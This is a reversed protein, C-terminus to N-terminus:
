VMTSLSYDDSHGHETGGPDDVTLGLQLLIVCLDYKDLTANLHMWSGMFTTMLRM